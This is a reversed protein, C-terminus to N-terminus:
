RKLRSPTPRSQSAINFLRRHAKKLQTISSRSSRMSSREEWRIQRLYAMDVPMGTPPIAQIGKTISSPLRKPIDMRQQGTLECWRGRTSWVADGEVGESTRYVGTAGATNSEVKTERGSADAFTGGKETPSELFHAVRIGLVGEKDDHFVVKDLAHLTVTMDITRADGKQSFVYKTKQDLIKEGAGTAWVSDVVLEGNAGSKVSVIKQHHITGMKGRDEPKIADSNNWFDFGNVNGYNFWIGAHHPHDM